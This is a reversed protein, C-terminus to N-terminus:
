SRCFNLRISKIRVGSLLGFLQGLVAAQVLSIGEQSDSRM